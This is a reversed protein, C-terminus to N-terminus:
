STEKREDERCTRCSGRLQVRFDTVEFGVHATEPITLRDLGADEFDILRSCQLCVLHHHLDIRPDYRTARGTHCAKTIVGVRVLYELTRYVTPMALDPLRKRVVEFVQDATPHDDRSLVGELIRRRQVTCREGREHCLREFLEM